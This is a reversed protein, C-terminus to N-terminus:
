ILNLYRNPIERVKRRRELFEDSNFRRGMAECRIKMTKLDADRLHFMILDKDPEIKNVIHHPNLFQQKETMIVHKDYLEDRSYFQRQKLIPKSLDLQDDEPMQIVNFGKCRIVPETVTSIYTGLNEYKRPDPIVIEDMDVYMLLDCEKFLDPQLQNMIGANAGWDARLRDGINHIRIDDFFQSYYKNWVEHYTSKDHTFSVLIKKM